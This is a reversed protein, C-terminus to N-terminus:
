NLSGWQDDTVKPSGSIKIKPLEKKLTNEIHKIDQIQQKYISIEQLDVMHKSVEVQEESVPIRVVEENVDKQTYTAPNISKKEIVLEEIKVPVIFSKEVMSVETYINVEGTQILKKAIDLQEQKIELTVNEINKAINTNQNAIISSAVM